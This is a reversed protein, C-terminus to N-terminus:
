YSIGYIIGCRSPAQLALDGFLCIDVIYSYGTTARVAFFPSGTEPDQRKKFFGNSYFKLASMDLIMIVDDDMEQIGVIKLEGKVSTIQIETWGFMSANTATPTVKFGGKQVEIAKMISGLHKYSMVFRDAKGRGVARVATYADFLRELLNTATISSGNVNKAQLYPYAVKSQGLITSSGGNAASLLGSRLSSFVNASTDAGPHYVKSVDAVTIDTLADGSVQTLTLLGASTNSTTAGNLNIASVTVTVTKLTGKFVLRQGITFRDIHDVEVVGGSCDVLVTAMNQAGLMQVSAAQKMNEIFSDIQGPLQQLFNQESIKGHEQLDREKFKLSGWMEPQSSLKGRVYSYETIDSADTLSGFSISSAVGGEFPVILDGGLWNNDKEVNNLLWDRKLLEEKFLDNPLYENLM